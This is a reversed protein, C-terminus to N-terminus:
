PVVVVVVVRENLSHTGVGLPPHNCLPNPRGLVARHIIVARNNQIWNFISMRSLSKFVPSRM